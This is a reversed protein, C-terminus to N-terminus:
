TGQCVPCLYAAQGGIRERTIPTGCRYCLQGERRYVHFRRAEFAHGARRMDEARALDNTIGGTRYSQRTLRHCHGALLRLQEPSLDAPRQQPHIGAVHLAECCLYNGMGALVSQDQLLRMFARRRYCPDNLRQFVQETDMSEDLLDPGLRALYHHAALEADSLVEIDSASYLLAVHTATYLALRVQRSSEPWANGEVVQWRGYLQNHSYIVRGNDFRTLLAKGHAEVARVRSGALRREWQKLRPLGFVVKRVSEGALAEALRDAAQRIEPGEPM